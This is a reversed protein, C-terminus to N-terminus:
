PRGAEDALFGLEDIDQRGEAAVKGLASPAQGEWRDAVKGLFLGDIRSEILENIM